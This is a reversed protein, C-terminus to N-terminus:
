IMYWLDKDTLSQLKQLLYLVSPNRNDDILVNSRTFKSVTCIFTM